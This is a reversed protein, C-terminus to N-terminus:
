EYRNYGRHDLIDELTNIIYHIDVPHLKSAKNLVNMYDKDKSYFKICKYEAWKGNEMIWKNKKM